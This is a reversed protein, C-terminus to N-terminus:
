LAILADWPRDIFEFAEWVRIAIYIQMFSQMAVRADVSICVACSAALNLSNQGKGSVIPARMALNRQSLRSAFAERSLWEVLTVIAM